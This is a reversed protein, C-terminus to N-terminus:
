NRHSTSRSSPLVRMHLHMYTGHLLMLICYVSATWVDIVPDIVTLTSDSVVCHVEDKLGKGVTLFPWFSHVFMVTSFHVVHIISGVM